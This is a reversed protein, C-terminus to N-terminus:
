PLTPPWRWAREGLSRAWQGAMTIVLWAFVALNVHLLLAVRFAERHDSSWAPLRFAVVALAYLTALAFALCAVQTWRHAIPTPLADCQPPGNTGPPPAAGMKKSTTLM